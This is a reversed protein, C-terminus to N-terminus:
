LDRAGSEAVVRSLTRDYGLLLIEGRGDQGFSVFGPEVVGPENRVDTPRGNWRFSRVWGASYSGFFYRGRYCASLASGRYVSGGIVATGGDHPYEYVPRELGTEDCGSAPTHCLSGEMVPWGFNQGGRTAPTVVDIEERQNDGVDAIYLESSDFWFRYPERLGYSFIEPKANPVGIFPNTPPVAYGETSPDVSIRLMKGSLVGLDQGNAESDDDGVGVYLYGDPGFLLMGGTNHHSTKPIDIVVSESAPDAINPTSAPVVFRSVRLTDALTTYSVYFIRNKAFDPHFVLSLLGVEFGQQAMNASVDLFPTAHIGSGDVIVVHGALRELVFVRPDGPPATAYVPSALADTIPELGLPACPATSGDGIGGARGDAGADRPRVSEDLSADHAPPAADAGAGSADNREAMGSDGSRGAPTADANAGGDM